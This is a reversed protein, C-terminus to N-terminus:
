TSTTSQTALTKLLYKFLNVVMCMLFISQLRGVGIAVPTNGLLGMQPRNEEARIVGTNGPQIPESSNEINSQTYICETM